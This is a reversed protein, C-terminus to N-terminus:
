NKDGPEILGEEHWKSLLDFFDEKCKDSDKFKIGFTELLERITPIQWGLFDWVHDFCEGYKEEYKWCM